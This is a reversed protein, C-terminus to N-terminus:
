EVDRYTNIGGSQAGIVDALAQDIYNYTHRCNYGGCAVEVPVRADKGKWSQNNWNAIEGRSYVKNNRAECFDRTTDKITGAYIAHTLGLQDAYALAVGRDFQFFLDRTFRNYYRAAFGSNPNIFDAFFQQQFQKLDQRSLIAQNIRQAIDASVADTNSLAAFLSGPTINGNDYGYLKLMRNLVQQENTPTVPKVGKYFDTSLGLISRFSDLLFGFLGRQEKKFTARVEAGVRSAEQINIISFKLRGDNDAQLKGIIKFVSPWLLYQYRLILRKWASEAKFVARERQLFKKKWDEM